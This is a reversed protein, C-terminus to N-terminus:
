LAISLHHNRTKIQCPTFSVSNTATQKIFCEAINWSGTRSCDTLLRSQVLCDLSQYQLCRGLGDLYSSLAILWTM